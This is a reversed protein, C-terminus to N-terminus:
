GQVSTITATGATGHELVDEDGTFASFLRLLAPVGLLAAATSIVVAIIAQRRLEPSVVAMAAFCLAFALLGGRAIHGWLRM